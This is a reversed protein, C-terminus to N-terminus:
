PKQSQAKNLGLVFAISLKMWHRLAKKDKLMTKPFVVYEKKIPGGPSYRLKKVTKGLLLNCRHVEPLKIAFGVPTLSM